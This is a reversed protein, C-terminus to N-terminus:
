NRNGLLMTPVVALIYTASIELSLLLVHSKQFFNLSLVFNTDDIGFLESLGDGVSDVIESAYRGDAPEYYALFGDHYERLKKSDEDSGDITIYGEDGKEGPHHTFLKRLREIELVYHDVSVESMM